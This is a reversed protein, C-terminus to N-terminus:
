YEELNLNGFNENRNQSPQPPLRNYLKIALHLSSKEGVSTFVRNNRLANRQRTNHDHFDCNPRVLHQNKYIFMVQEYIYVCPLTLINLQRFRTRCSVRKSLSHCDSLLRVAQKQLRFIKIAASSNGWFMIGYTMLSSFYAHYTTLLVDQSVNKKLTRLSYLCRSLKKSLADVHVEWTLKHDITVGLFKFDNCFSLSHSSVCLSLSM